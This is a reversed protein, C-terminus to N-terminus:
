ITVLRCRRDVLTNFYLGIDMNTNGQTM